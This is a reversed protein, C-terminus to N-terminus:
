LTDPAIIARRIARDQIAQRTLIFFSMFPDLPTIGHSTVGGHTEKGCKPCVSNAMGVVTASMEPGHEVCWRIVKTTADDDENIIPLIGHFFEIPDERRTFVMPEDDSGEDPLITLKSCWHMYELGRITDILVSHKAEYEKDDIVTTRLERIAPGIYDMLVDFAIFYESLTCQEFDIRQTDDMCMVSNNEVFQYEDQLALVEAATYHASFNKLNGLAAAQNDTMCSKDHWLMTEPDAKVFESWDCKSQNCYLQIPIGQDSVNKMMEVFLARLDSLKILRALDRPEDIDTVSHQTIKESLHEWVVRYISARILTLSNGNFSRVYGHIEKNIQDIMRGLELMDSPELRLQIFSDRLLVDYGNPTRSKRQSARQMRDRLATAANKAGPYRAVIDFEKHNDAVMSQNEWPRTMMTPNRFYALEVFNRHFSLFHGMMTELEDDGKDPHQEKRLEEYQNKLRTLEAKSVKGEAEAARYRSWALVLRMTPEFQAKSTGLLITLAAMEANPDAPNREVVKPHVQDLSEKMTTNEATQKERLKPRINQEESM